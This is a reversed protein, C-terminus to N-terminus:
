QATTSPTESSQSTFVEYAKTNQDFFITEGGLEQKVIIEGSFTRRDVIDLRRLTCLHWYGDAQARSATGEALSRVRGAAIDSQLLHVLNSIPERALTALPIQLLGSNKIFSIIEGYRSSLSETEGLNWIADLEEQL